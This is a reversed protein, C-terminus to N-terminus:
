IYKINLFVALIDGYKGKIKKLLLKNRFDIFLDYIFGCYFKIISEINRIEVILIKLIDKNFNPM